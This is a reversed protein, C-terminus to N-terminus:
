GSKVPLSAAFDRGRELWRLLAQDKVLGDPAIMLWGQMPRGTVDFERVHPQALYHGYQQPGCRVILQDQWIGFAMNGHLLYGLGGFMKKSGFGPWNLSLREIREALETDYAM